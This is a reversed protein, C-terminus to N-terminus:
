SRNYHKLEEARSPLIISFEILGMIQGNKLWPQQRILKEQGKKSITYTNSSGTALMEQIKEWSSPSHCDKLNKGLVKGNVEESKLNQYIVEGLTTCVTVAIDLEKLYDGKCSQPIATKTTM